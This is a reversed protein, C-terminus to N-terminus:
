LFILFFYFFILTRSNVPRKSQRLKKAINKMKNPIQYTGDSSVIYKAKSTDFKLFNTFYKLESRETKNRYIDERIAFKGSFVHLRYNGKNYLARKLDLFQLEVMSGMTNILTPTSQPKWDIDIKMLNNMSEVNNNTWKSASAPGEKTLNNFNLKPELTKVFYANFQGNSAVPWTLLHASRAEYQYVYTANLIGNEGFIKDLIDARDKCNVGVNNRLYHSVNDKLHKTCLSRKAHPFVTDIAKTLGKEDDSGIQISPPLLIDVNDIQISLKGQVHSLFYHYKQFNAEKHLVVPGLFIPHDNSDM